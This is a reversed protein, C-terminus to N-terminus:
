SPKPQSILEVEAGNFLTSLGEFLTSLYGTPGGSRSNLPWDFYIGFKAKKKNLLSVENM